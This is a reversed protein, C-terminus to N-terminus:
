PPSGRSPENRQSARADLGLSRRVAGVLAEDDAPDVTRLDLVVRQDRVYGIVPPSGARLDRALTEGGALSLALGPLPEEPAAGGGLFADAAVVEAGVREAIGRLRARHTAEDVWMRDIPM